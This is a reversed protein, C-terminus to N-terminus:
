DQPTRVEYVCWDTDPRIQRMEAAMEEAEDRTEMTGDGIPLWVRPPEGAEGRIGVVWGQEMM